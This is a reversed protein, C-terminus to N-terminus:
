PSGVVTEPRTGLTLDVSGMEGQRVITIEITDGPTTELALHASLADLYSIEAGDMALIVDGGVPVSTGGVTERDTTGELVGDAPEGDLVGEVYVGTAEPLENARAISPTVELLQVGMYSHDYTDGRRLVPLVENALAGSIAFGINEGAGAFVVGLARGALDVLPGGSNGPNVAADTQIAAPIAFGTPSPLSRNIGSVIGTTASGGFGFPSGIAMVETGISPFESVISLSEVYGPPNDIEVVALDSHADTSLVDGEGWEQDRYRIEVRDRDGVLHDNTVLQDESIFGSGAEELEFPGGAPIRLEVVAPAVAEYLDVFRDDGIEVQVVTGREEATASPPEVAACGAVSAASLGAITSVFGRRTLDLDTM